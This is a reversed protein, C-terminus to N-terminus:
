IAEWLSAMAAAEAVLLADMGPISTTKVFLKSRRVDLIGVTTGAPAKKSLLHLATNAKQKSLSDSKLYLKVLHPKGDIAVHLEPNVSVRLAGGTWTSRSSPLPTITKRGVWKSLGKRCEEYNDVKKPDTVDALSAKLKQADWGQNFIDDVRDRFPKYFDREPAYGDEYYKKARRVKTLRGTGNTSVFDVFTTMSVNLM